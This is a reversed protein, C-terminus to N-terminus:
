VAGVYQMAKLSSSLRAHDWFAARLVVWMDVLPRTEVSEAISPGGHVEVFYLGKAYQQPTAQFRRGGSEVSQGESPCSSWEQSVERGMSCYANCALCTRM